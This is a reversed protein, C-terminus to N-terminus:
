RRRPAAAAVAPPHPHPVVVVPAAAAAGPRPRAAGPTAGLILELTNGRGRAVFPPAPEHFRLTLEAGTTRNFVGAGAMRGDQQVLPSAMDLSRRGPVVVVISAGRAGVGSLQTIPGDMRLRLVTGNRVSPNGFVATAAGNAPVATATPRATAAPAPAAAAVRQAPATARGAPAATPAAVRAAAAPAASRAAPGASRVQPASAAPAVPAPRPARPARAVTLVPREEPTHAAPAAAALDRNMPARGAPVVQPEPASSPEAPAGEPAVATPEPEAGPTVANPDTAGETLAGAVTPRPAEPQPGGRTSVVIIVGALCLAAVGCAALRRNRKKVTAPDAAGVHQPRLSRRPTVSGAATTAGSASRTSGPTSAVSAAANKKRRAQLAERGRSAWGAVTDAGKRLVPTAWEAARTYQTKASDWLSPSAQGFDEEQPSDELFATAQAQRNGPSTATADDPGDDGDPADPQSQPAVQRADELAPATVAQVSSERPAPRKRPEDPTVVPLVREGSDGLDMTLVLRPVRTRADVEVDIAEISAGTREGLGDLELREGLKLFTLNTSVVVADDTRSRLRARLPADMGPICLRVNEEAARQGRPADDNAAVKREILDRVKPDLDMFRVGFAGNREGRDEAWVVEGSADVTFGDVAFRCSIREGHEPLFATRVAMGGTSLDMADAQFPDGHSGTALDVTARFPRRPMAPDRRDM